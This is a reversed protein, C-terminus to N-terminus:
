LIYYFGKGFYKKMFSFYTAIFSLPFEALIGIIGFIIVYVSLMFEVFDDITWLYFSLIGFLIMGSSCLISVIKILINLRSNDFTQGVM